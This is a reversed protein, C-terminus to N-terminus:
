LVSGKAIIQAILDDIKEHILDYAIQIYLDDNM